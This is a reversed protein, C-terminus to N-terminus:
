AIVLGCHLFQSQLLHDVLILLCFLDFPLPDHVDCRPMLTLENVIFISVKLFQKPHFFDFLSLLALFLRILKIWGGNILQPLTREKILLHIAIGPQELM